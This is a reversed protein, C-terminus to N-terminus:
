IFEICFHHNAKYKELSRQIKDCILLLRKCSGVYECIAGQFHSKGIVVKQRLCHLFQMFNGGHAYAYVQFFICANPSFILEYSNYTPFFSDFSLFYHSILSILIITSLLTSTIGSSWDFVRAFNAISVWRSSKVIKFLMSYFYISQFYYWHEVSM